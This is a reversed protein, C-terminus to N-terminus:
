SVKGLMSLIENGGPNGTMIILDNRDADNRSAARGTHHASVVVVAVVVALVTM